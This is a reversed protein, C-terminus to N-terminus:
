GFPQKLLTAPLKMAELVNRAESENVEDWGSDPDWVLRAMNPDEEWTPTQRTLRQCDHGDKIRTMAVPEADVTAVFYKTGALSPAVM